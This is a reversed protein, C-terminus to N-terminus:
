QTNQEKLTYGMSLLAPPKDEGEYKTTKASDILKDLTNLALRLDAYSDINFTKSLAEGAATVADSMEKNETLGYFIGSVTASKEDESHSAAFISFSADGKIEKKHTNMIIKYGFGVVLSAIPQNGAEEGEVPRNSYFIHQKLIYTSENDESAKFLGSFGGSSVEKADIAVENFETSNLSSIDGELCKSYMKTFTFGLASLDNPETYIVSM